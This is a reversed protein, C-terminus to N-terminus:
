ARMLSFVHTKYSSEPYFQNKFVTLSDEGGGTDMYEYGERKTWELDELYLLLGLDPHSYDHIGVAGYYSSSNPIEWGANIGRPTGDIVFTRAGEMGRFEADIMNHYRQFWARDNGGRKKKWTEIIQHLLNKDTTKANEVSVAHEKELKHKANRIHKFHKGPLEPNFMTMNMIPWTLSYNVQCARISPSLARILDKRIETELEATVKKINKQQFCRTIYELLKPTAMEKPAIPETMISCVGDWERTFLGTGDDWSVYINEEGKEKSYEFWDYNHEAGYGHTQIAKEIREREKETNTFFHM